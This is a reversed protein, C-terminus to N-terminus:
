LRSALGCSTLPVPALGHLEIAFRAMFGLVDGICHKEIRDFRDATADADHVALVINAVDGAAAHITM